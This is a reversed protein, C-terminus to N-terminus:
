IKRKGKKGVKREKPLEELNNKINNHKIMYKRLFLFLIRLIFICCLINISIRLFNTYIVNNNSTISIILKIPVVVVILSIILTPISNWIAKPKLSAFLKLIKKKLYTILKYYVRDKKDLQFYIYKIKYKLRLRFVILNEVFIFSIFYACVISLVEMVISTINEDGFGVIFRGIIIGSTATLFAFKKYGPIPVFDDYYNNKSYKGQKIMGFIKIFSYILILALISAYMRLFQANRTYYSLDQTNNLSEFRPIICFISFTFYYHVMRMYYLLNQFKFSLRRSLSIPIGILHYPLVFILFISVVIWYEIYDITMPYQKYTSIAILFFFTGIFSILS